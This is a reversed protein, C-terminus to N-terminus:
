RGRRSAPHLTASRFSPALVNGPASAAESAPTPSTEFDSEDFDAERERREFSLPESALPTVSAGRSGPEPGAAEPPVQPEERGLDWAEVPWRQWAERHLVLMSEADEALTHWEVASLSAPGERLARTRLEALRKPPASAPKSGVKAVHAAILVPDLVLDRFRASADSRTLVRLEDIRALLAEPQHESPVLLLGLRRALTGFTASSVMLNLPIALCWPVWLPAFWLSLGTGALWTWLGLGVGLLTAPWEARLVKVFSGSGRRQQAGWRVARGSLISVVIRTHHIMLLPALLSGLVLGLAASSVLRV